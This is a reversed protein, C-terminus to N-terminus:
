REPSSGLYLERVRDDKMLVAAEGSLGIAGNELVYARNAISLAMAANQEVLLIAVGEAHIKKLVAFVESMLKPSLGMSPEDLLLLKPKRLLARAIALMQQEGGSLTSALQKQRERLKPFLVYVFEDAVHRVGWCALRLNELVTLDNFIGRGEPVHAIGLGIRKHAAVQALNQGEYLIDGKYNLLGSIARLTSTKGAGNSGLLAVIEGKGVQLSINHLAPIRGYNLSL